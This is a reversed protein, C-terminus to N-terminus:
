FPGDLEEEDTLVEAMLALTHIRSGHRFCRRFTRLRRRVPFEWTRNRAIETTPFDARRPKSDCPHPAYM